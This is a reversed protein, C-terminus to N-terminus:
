TRATEMIIRRMYDTQAKNLKANNYYEIVRRLVSDHDNFRRVMNTKSISQEDRGQCYRYIHYDYLITTKVYPIPFLIYEVDVYSKHEQLKHGHARLIETKFLSSALTFYIGEISKDGLEYVQGYKVKEANKFPQYWQKTKGTVANVIEYKTVIVDVDTEEDLVVKILKNFDRTNVWDDSDVVMFYKGKAQDLACNITSGHGGNEKDIARVIGPYRKEYERAILLSHDKSGDNVVLVELYGAMDHAVISNLCRDLYREVNYCPVCVTILKNNESEVSSFWKKRKVVVENNLVNNDIILNEVLDDFMGAVKEASFRERYEVRDSSKMDVNMKGQVIRVLAAEVADAKKTYLSLGGSGKVINDAPSNEDTIALIPREAGMYDALKGAFFITGEPMAKPQKADIHLLWDSEEMMKLSTIYDTNGVFEFCEGLYFNEIADYLSNPHNGILKITIKDTIKPYVAIPDNEAMLEKSRISRLAYVFPMLSRTKDSSGAYTFVVKGQDEKVSGPYMERDFTHPIAVMKKYGAHNKLTYEKQANSPCVVLDALEFAEEEMKRNAIMHKLYKEEVSHEEGTQVLHLLEKKRKETFMKNDYIYSTLEYPNNSVPDGMSAIWKLEPHNQKLIIGVKFAEPPMSRTMIFDYPNQRHKKEFLEICKEVWDDISDTDFTTVTVNDLDIDFDADFGWQKSSSGCVDYTHKSYKLLKYTVIGESSTAPPFFWCAVFGRM